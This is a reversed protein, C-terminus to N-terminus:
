SAELQSAELQSAELQSAELQSAELQSAELEKARQAAGEARSCRLCRRSACLPPPPM